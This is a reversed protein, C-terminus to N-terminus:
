FGLKLQANTGYLLTKGVDFGLQQLTAVYGAPLVVQHKIQVVDGVTPVRHCSWISADTWVGDNLTYMAPCTSLAITHSLSGTTTNSPRIRYYYSPGAMLQTDTFATVNPAVGGVPVFGTTPLTSREIFYGMENNAKDQWTLVVSLGVLSAALNSPAIVTTPPFDLSYSTHTQRLALGAQIREYQGPTFDQTCPFYYSMINTISPSYAEGNADRATSNLDYQPCGNVYTLKAGPTYYPDAPTDCIQDGATTCNAGAGRTVLEDTPSTGSGPFGFTHFLGFNHGLEHPIVQNGLDLGQSNSGYTLIVSRTSVVEDTPYYAYGLSLFGPPFVNIYYQNMANLADHGNLLAGEIFGEFLEDDDIYDPISGAFYFQIGLGNSLYYNNTTAIVDNLSALTYGGTGNSRRIIHPRIPVYTIATLASRSARKRQLAQNAEQILLRAQAPTPDITGCTESGSLPFSQAWLTTYMSLWLLLGIVVQHPVTAYNM